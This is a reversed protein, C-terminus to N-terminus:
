DIGTKSLFAAKAKSRLAWPKEKDTNFWCIAEIVRRGGLTHRWDWLRRVYAEQGPGSPCATEPIIWPVGPCVSRAWRFGAFLVKPDYDYPYNAYADVGFLDAPVAYDRLPAIVNNPGERNPCFLSRVNRPMPDYFAHWRAKFDVPLHMGWPYWDGNFEHMYRVIVPDGYANFVDAMAAVDGANPLSWPEVTVLAQKGQRRIERIAQDAWGPNTAGTFVHGIEGPYTPPPGSLTWPEYTGVKTETM